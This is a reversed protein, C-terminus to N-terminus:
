DAFICLFSVVHDNDGVVVELFQYEPFVVRDDEVRGGERCGEFIADDAVPVSINVDGDISTIANRGQTEVLGGINVGGTISDSNDGLTYFWAATTSDGRLAGIILCDDPQDKGAFRGCRNGGPTDAEIQIQQGDDLVMIGPGVLVPSSPGGRVFESTRTASNWVLDSDVLDGMFDFQVLAATEVGPGGCSALIVWGAALLLM